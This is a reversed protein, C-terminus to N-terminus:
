CITTKSFDRRYLGVVEAPGPDGPQRQDEPLAAIAANVEDMEKRIQALSLHKFSTSQGNITVSEVTKGELLKQYANRLATRYQLLAYRDLGQFFM